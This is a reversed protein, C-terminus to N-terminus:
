KLWERLAAVYKYRQEETLVPHNFAGQSPVLVLPSVMLSPGSALSTSVQCLQDSNMNSSFVREGLSASSRGNHCTACKMEKFLPIVTSNFIESNACVPAATDAAVEVFSVTLTPSALEDKLVLLSGPSLTPTYTVGGSLKVFPVSREVNTYENNVIDYRGNLLIKVDKLYVARDGGMLRPNRFLYLGRTGPGKEMFTQGEIEFNIGSLESKITGLDFSVTTFGEDPGPFNAPIAVPASFYRGNRECAKEGNNWWAKGMQVMEKGSDANCNAKACHGNGARFVLLSEEVTSFNMYNLLQNYSSVADTTAFPPAGPRSGDHCESCSVRVKKYVTEKFANFGDDCAQAHAGGLLILALICNLKFM